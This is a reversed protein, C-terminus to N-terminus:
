SLPRLADRARQLALWFRADQTTAFNIRMLTTPRPSAHFLAGPAILWGDDHMAQALRETDVGTDVWGFLGRPEAAFRCGHARALEVSRGRAADLLRQVREAHRRLLGHELCHALALETMSPTTLTTLLKTDILRDVWRAPAAIYGIRWSPTLIKSFGSVYVTRELADLAALRPLHAPALHAYTDDEVIAFDHAQALKLVKHASQLSLSAGTPNHLVSVTVYLRPRAGEPQAEVLRQMVALDPGEPGRPVPLVRMGLAALRAYEVSWGPEDVLVSEGPKLLTRTVIDLAHTAGVTTIIQEPGAAIGHEVLRAALARRLRAEGAPEGYQLASRGLQASVKRMAGALLAPDLWEIPLTGLGPMPQAGPPQFMGRILTTASIPVPSRPAAPSRAAGPASADGLPARVFFGRQARAEVLGQALLQDYAAVVTTPSVEHRRACERVSPLRAGPALLRARIREAFRAALQETLTSDAERSLPLAGPLASASATDFM